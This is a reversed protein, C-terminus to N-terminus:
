RRTYTLPRCWNFILRRYKRNFWSYIISNHCCSSIGLWYFLLFTKSDNCKNTEISSITSSSLFFERIYLFNIPLHSFTFVIIIVMLLRITRARSQEFTSFQRVGIISRHAIKYMTLLCLITITMLPIIYFFFILCFIRIKRIYYISFSKITTPFLIRCGILKDYSNFYTDVKMSILCSTSFLSSLFWTLFIIRCTKRRYYQQFPNQVIRYRDLAIVCTTLTSTNYGLIQISKCLVCIYSSFTFTDLFYKSCFLFQIPITLGVLADAVALNLLFINTACLPIHRSHSFLHKRRQLSIRCILSNNIVALLSTITYLILLFINQILILHNM